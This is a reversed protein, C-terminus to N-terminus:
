GRPSQQTESDVFARLWARFEPGIDDREWAIHVIASLYGMVNGADYRGGPLVYGYVPGAGHGPQAMAHLADTLQVEGGHGPRTRRLTAFVDPTLIFRGVIALDSPAEGPAPKEVLGTIRVVDEDATPEAVACGYRHIQARDVRLLTLVSGGHREHLALLQDLLRASLDVVEDPLLVAFPRDGIRPEACLVAHGVGHPEDQHLYSFDALGCWGPGFHDEIAEKGRRSVVVVHALGAAVAEDVAYQMIPRDVLPLLEKPIVKTAPLLRTGLGAAPIVASRVSGRAAKL